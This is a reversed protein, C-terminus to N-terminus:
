LRFVRRLLGIRSGREVKQPFAHTYRGHHLRHVIQHPSMVLGIEAGALDANSTAAIMKQNTGWIRWRNSAPKGLDEPPVTCWRQAIQDPAKSHGVRRWVNLTEGARLFVHARFVRPLSEFSAMWDDPVPTIVDIVDSGPLTSDRGIHHALAIVSGDVIEYVDGIRRRPAM